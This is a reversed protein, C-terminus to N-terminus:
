HIIPRQQELELQAAAVEPSISEQTMRTFVDEFGFGQSERFLDAATSMAHIVLSQMRLCAAFFNPCATQAWDLAMGEQEIEYGLERGVKDSFDVFVLFMTTFALTGGEPSENSETAAEVLLSSIRESTIDKGDAMLALALGMSLVEIDFGNM